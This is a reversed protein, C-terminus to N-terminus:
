SQDNIEFPIFVNKNMEQFQYSYGLVGEMIVSFFEDDDDDAAAAAAAADDDYIHYYPFISPVCCPSYWLLRAHLKDKELNVCKGHFIGACNVCYM